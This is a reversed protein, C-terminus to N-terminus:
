RYIIFAFIGVYETCMVAKMQGGRACVQIKSARVRQADVSDFSADVVTVEFYRDSQPAPLPFATAVTTDFGDNHGEARRQQM